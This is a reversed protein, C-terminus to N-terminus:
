RCMDPVFFTYRLVVTVDASPPRVSEASRVDYFVSIGNAEGLYLLCERNALPFPKNTDGSRACQRCRVAQAIVRRAQHQWEWHSRGTDWTLPPREVGLRAVPRVLEAKDIHM